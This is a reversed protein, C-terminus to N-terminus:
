EEEEKHGTYELWIDYAEQSHDELDYHVECHEYQYITGDVDDRFKVLLIAENDCNYCKMIKGAKFYNMM